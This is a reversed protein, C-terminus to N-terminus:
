IAHLARPIDGIQTPRGVLDLWILQVGEARRSTQNDPAAEAGHVRSRGGARAASRCGPGGSPPATARSWGPRKPASPNWSSAWTGAWEPSIGSLVLAREPVIRLVKFGEGGVPRAPLVDGVALHQLEPIIRDASRVGGNDLIDWSYWGGRQCGMQLLWPWVDVPPADIVAAHTLQARPDALIDDGEIPWFREAATKLARVM